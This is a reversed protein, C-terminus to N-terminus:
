TASFQPNFLIDLTETDEVESAWLPERVQPFYSKQARLHSFDFRKGKEILGLVKDFQDKDALPGQKNTAPDGVTIKKAREVSLRM